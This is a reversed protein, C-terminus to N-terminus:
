KETIPDHFSILVIHGNQIEKEIKIYVRINSLEVGTHVTFTGTLEFELLRTGLHFKNKSRIERLFQDESLSQIFMLYDDINLDLGKSQAYNKWQEDPSTRDYPLNTSTASKIASLISKVNPHVDKPNGLGYWDSLKDIQGKTFPPKGLGSDNYLDNILHLVRVDKINRIENDKLGLLEQEDELLYEDDTTGASIYVNDLTATAANDVIYIRSVKFDYSTSETSRIYKKM